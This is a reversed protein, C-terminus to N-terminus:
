CLRCSEANADILAVNQAALVRHQGGLLPIQIVPIENQDDSTAHRAAPDPNNHAPRSNHAAAVIRGAPRM